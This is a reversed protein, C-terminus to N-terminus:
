PKCQQTIPTILHCEEFSNRHELIVGGVWIQWTFHGAGFSIVEAAMEDSFHIFQPIGQFSSVYASIEKQEGIHFEEGTQFQKFTIM